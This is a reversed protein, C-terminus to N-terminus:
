LICVESSVESSFSADMTQSPQTALGRALGDV